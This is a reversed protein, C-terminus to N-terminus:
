TVTVESVPPPLQLKETVTSSVFPLTEISQGPFLCPVALLSQSAVNVRPLGVVVPSLTVILTLRLSPLGIYSQSTFPSFQTRLVVSRGNELPVVVTVQVANECSVGPGYAPASSSSACRVPLSEHL